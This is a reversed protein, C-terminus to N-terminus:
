FANGGRRLQVSALQSRSPAEGMKRQHCCDCYPRERRRKRISREYNGWECDTSRWKVLVFCHANSLVKSAALRGFRQRNVMTRGQHLLRNVCWLGSSRNSLTATALVSGGRSGRVGRQKRVWLEFRVQLVAELLQRRCCRATFGLDRRFRRRRRKGAYEEIAFQWRATCTCWRRNM